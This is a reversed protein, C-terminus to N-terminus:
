QIILEEDINIGLKELEEKSIEVSNEFLSGDASAQKIYEIFELLDKQTGEFDKFCGPAFEITLDDDKSM